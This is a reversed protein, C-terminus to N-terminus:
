LPVVDFARPKNQKGPGIDFEVMTGVALSQLDGILNTIHVFLLETAQGDQEIFGFAREADWSVVRGFPRGYRSSTVQSMPKSLKALQEELRTQVTGQSAYRPHDPLRTYKADETLLYSVFAKLARRRAYPLEVKIFDGIERHVEESLLPTVEMMAEIYIWDGLAWSLHQRGSPAIELKSTKEIKSITPDYGLVFGIRLMAALLQTVAREDFGMDLFFKKIAELEVYRSDSGSLQSCTDELFKLIRLALLPSTDLQSELAFVNHVFENVASSPYIDYKGRIIASKVNDPHVEMSTHTISASLLEKVKIHSSTIIWRTLELCRRIDQNALNGIWKAVEGTNIFVTQVSSTFMELNEVELRHKNWLYGTGKTAKKETQTIEGIYDVRKKLVVDPSPTPLFFSEYFFSHIAGQRTLQWSTKDTIPVLVLCLINEYISRAYQFVRDQFDIDFHDTNDFILCPAKRDSHVIRHLLNELYEHPRQERRNNIHEGFKDRFQNYDRTYLGEFPGDRWREYEENYIGRLQDYTPHKDGFVARETEVLLHQDLWAVVTKEEGESKSLDVKIIRCDDRIKSPLIDKFFREIFTSKGAGKTGVLVIFERGGGKVREVTKTIAHTEARSDSTKITQVKNRLETSIRAISEEAHISEDTTVFCRRRMEADDEGKLDRFFLMMIKDIDDYLKDYEPTTRSDPKRIPSRFNSPCLPQNGAAQFEAKYRLGRVAEYSLLDYFLTFRTRVSELSGFVCAQGEEVDRGESGRGRFVVWQRGNTVCALEASRFGCYLIAQNLGEQFDPSSFVSGNLKFYRGAHDAKIGLDREDRKAEIVLRNLGDTKCLYDIFKKGADSELFIAERPWGLVEIFVRDILKLRVDAETVLTDVYRPLEDDVITQFKEFAVDIPEM